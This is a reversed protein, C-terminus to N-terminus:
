RCYFVRDSLSLHGAYAARSPTRLSFPAQQPNTDLPPVKTEAQRSEFMSGSPLRQTQNGIDRLGTKGDIGQFTVRLCLTARATLIHTQNYSLIQDEEDNYM